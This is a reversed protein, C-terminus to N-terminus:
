RYKGKPLAVTNPETIIASKRSPPVYEDIGKLRAHERKLAKVVQDINRKPGMGPTVLKTTNGKEVLDIVQHLVELQARTIAQIGARSAEKYEVARAIDITEAVQEATPAGHLRFLEDALKKAEKSASAM